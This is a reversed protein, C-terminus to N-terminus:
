DNFDGGLNQSPCARKTKLPPGTLDGLRVAPRHTLSEIAKTVASTLGLEAFSHGGEIISVVEELGRQPDDPNVRNSLEQMLRNGLKLQQEKTLTLMLPKLGDRILANDLLQSRAFLAEGPDNDPLIEADVCVGNIQLLRSDVERLAHRVNDLSGVAVLQQKGATDNEIMALCRSILRYTNGLTIGHEDVKTWAQEVRQNLAQYDTEQLWPVGDRFARHRELELADRQAETSQVYQSAESMHFSVANFRIVLQHLFSPGTLFWRCCTCNYAGGHVPGNIGSNAFSLLSGGNHCGPLRNNLEMASGANGGALCWGYPKMVWGGPVRDNKNEDLVSRAANWNVPIFQAAIQDLSTEALFRRMSEPAVEDMRQRAQAIEEALRVPGMKIYYLTMILRSHGAVLKSLVPLPVGGDIALCTLLSVRLSHLPFLTASKSGAYVFKINAGNNFTKGKQAEDTELETLLEYWLRDFAGEPIPKGREAGHASADRFLFCTDSYMALINPSKVESLHRRHLSKWSVPADIPNYKEQWNRLKELWYLVEEHEWPIVYGKNDGESKADATKNTNVYLGTIILRQERDEIRRFIGRQIPFNEDGLALRANSLKWEVPPVEGPGLAQRGASSRNVSVYRWTDAEGSDLMRVQSGRLPLHLKILLAVCRAPCWMETISANKVYKGTLRSKRCQVVRTRWVCDPDDLDILSPDVEFWDCPPGGMGRKGSHTTKKVDIKMGIARHAWTWDRFHPGPALIERLRRLYIYPLPSRVSETPASGRAQKVIPIPNLFEPSFVPRGHDDPKSLYTVLVWDLFRSIANNLKVSWHGQETFAESYFDPIVQERNFFWGPEAQIGFTPNLMYRKFFIRLGCIIHDRGEDKTDIYATVYERWTEWHMGHDRTIWKYTVDHGDAHRKNVKM